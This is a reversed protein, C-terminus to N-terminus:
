QVPYATIIEDTTGPKIIIRIKTEGNTGVVRGMDTVWAAADNPDQIKNGLWAEDILPLLDTSNDVNFVTHNAKNPNPALHEFVHLVRNGEPGTPRYVLGAPSTWDCPGTNHVLVGPEDESTYIYYNQVHEVTLNYLEMSEDLPKLEVVTALSGNDTKLRMDPQLDVMPVYDEVDLVYFPHEESGTIIDTKGCSDFRVTLALVDGEHFNVHTETVQAFVNGTDKAVFRQNELDLEWSWVKGQFVVESDPQVDKLLWHGKQQQSGSKFLFVIDDPKPMRWNDPDFAQDTEALKTIDLEPKLFLAANKPTTAYVYDGVIFEMDPGVDGYTKDEWTGDLRNYIKVPTDDTWDKPGPIGEYLNSSSRNVVSEVQPAQGSNVQSIPVTQAQSTDAQLSPLFIIGAIIGIAVVLAVISIQFIHNNSQLKAQRQKNKSM